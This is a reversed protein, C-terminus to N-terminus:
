GNTISQPDPLIVVEGLAATLLWLIVSWFTKGEGILGLEVQYVMSSLPGIFCGLFLKQLTIPTACHLCLVTRSYGDLQVM